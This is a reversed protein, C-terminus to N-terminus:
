SLINLQLLLAALRRLLGVTLPTWDPPPLGRLSGGRPTPPVIYDQM